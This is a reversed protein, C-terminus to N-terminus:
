ATAADEAADVRSAPWTASAAYSDCSADSVGFANDNRSHSELKFLLRAAGAAGNNANRVLAKCIYIKSRHDQVTM